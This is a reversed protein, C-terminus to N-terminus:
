CYRIGLSSAGPAAMLGPWSFCIKMLTSTGTSHLDAGSWSIQLRGQCSDIDPVPLAGTATRKCRGDGHSRSEGEKVGVEAFAAGGGELRKIKSMYIAKSKNAAM